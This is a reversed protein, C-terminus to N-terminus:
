RRGKSAQGYLFAIYEGRSIEVLPRACHEDWWEALHEEPVREVSSWNDLQFYRYTSLEEERNQKRHRYKYNILKL